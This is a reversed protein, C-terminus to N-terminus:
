FNKPVQGSVLKHGFYDVKSGYRHPSPQSKDRLAKKQLLLLIYFEKNTVGRLMMSM